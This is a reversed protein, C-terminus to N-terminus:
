RKLCFCKLKAKGYVAVLILCVISMTEGSNPFVKSIKNLM